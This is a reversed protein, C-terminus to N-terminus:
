REGSRRRSATVGLREAIGNAAAAGMAGEMLGALADHDIEELLEPLSEAFEAVMRRFDEDSTGPDLAAMTLRELPRRVAALWPVAVTPLEARVVQSLKEFQRFRTM